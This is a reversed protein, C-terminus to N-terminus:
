SEPLSATTALAPVSSAGISMACYLAPVIRGGFRNECESWCISHCPRSGPSMTRLPQPPRRASLSMAFFEPCFTGVITETDPVCIKLAPRVVTGNTIGVDPPTSSDPCPASATLM